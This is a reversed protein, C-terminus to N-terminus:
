KFLCKELRVLLCFLVVVGLLGIGWFLIISSFELDFILCVLFVGGGVIFGIIDFVRYVFDGVFFALMDILFEVLGLWGVVFFLFFICFITVLGLIRLMKNFGLIIFSISDRFNLGFLFVFYLFFFM